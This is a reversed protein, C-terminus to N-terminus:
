AKQKRWRPPRANVPSDLLQRSLFPRILAWAEDESLPEDRDVAIVVKVRATGKPPAFRPDEVGQHPSHTDLCYLIGPLM